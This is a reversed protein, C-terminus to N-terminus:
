TTGLSIQGRGTTVTEIGASCALLCVRGGFNTLQCIGPSTMGLVTVTFTFSCAACSMKCVLVYMFVRQTFIRREGAGHLAHVHDGVIALSYLQLHMIM